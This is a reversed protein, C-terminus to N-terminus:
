KPLRAAPLRTTATEDNMTTIRHLPERMARKVGATEIQATEIQLILLCTM